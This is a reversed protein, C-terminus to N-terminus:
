DTLKLTLLVFIVTDSSHEFDIAKKQLNKDYITVKTIVHLILYRFIVKFIGLKNLQSSDANAM